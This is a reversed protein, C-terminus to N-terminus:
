DDLGKRFEAGFFKTPLFSLPLSREKRRSDLAEPTNYPVKPFEEALLVM